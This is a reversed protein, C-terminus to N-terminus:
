PRDRLVYFYRRRIASEDRFFGDAVRGAEFAWAFARRTTRVWAEARAPDDRRITAINSPIELLALGPRRAAEPDVRTPEIAGDPREVLEILRPADAWDEIPTTDRPAPDRDVDWEAILRDTPAGASLADTRPGYMDEVYHSATAGLRQLNFHANGSQLPDFSWALRPIGEARAFDRQALKLRLGLGGGQRGPVVGTLQSYLCPRGEVKGLFAFSVGAAAGDPTFAGLVLGGHLNAGVLTALPVVYSEDVLGWALRQAQQCARYDAVSAAPRITVEDATSM